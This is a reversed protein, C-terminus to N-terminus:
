IDLLPNTQHFDFTVKNRLIYNNTHQWPSNSTDDKSFGQCTLNNLSTDATPGSLNLGPDKNM